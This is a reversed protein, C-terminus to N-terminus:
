NVLAMRLAALKKPSIAEAQTILILAAQALQQRCLRSIAESFRNGPELGLIRAGRLADVTVTLPAASFEGENWAPWMRAASGPMEVIVMKGSRLIARASAQEAVAFGLERWRISDVSEGAMGPIIAVEQGAKRRMAALRAIATTKGSGLFGGVVVLRPEQERSQELKNVEM